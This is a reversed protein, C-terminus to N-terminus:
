YQFVVDGGVIIVIGIFVLIVDTIDFLVLLQSHFVLTPIGGCYILKLGILTLLLLGPM